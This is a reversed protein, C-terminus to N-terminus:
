SVQHNHPIHLQLCFYLLCLSFFCTTILFLYFVPSIGAPLHLYIYSTSIYLTFSPLVYQYSLVPPHHLNFCLSLAFGVRLFCFLFHQLVPPLSSHLDSPPSFPNCFSLLNLASSPSFTHFVLSFLFLFLLGWPPSLLLILAQTLMFLYTLFLKANLDKFHQM